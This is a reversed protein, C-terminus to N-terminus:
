YLQNFLKKYIDANQRYSGIHKIYAITKEPLSRINAEVLQEMDRYIKLEPCFYKAKFSSTQHINSQQINQKKLHPPHSTSTYVLSAHFFLWITLVANSHLKPLRLK